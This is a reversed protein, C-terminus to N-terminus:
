SEKFVGRQLSKIVKLKVGFNEFLRVSL